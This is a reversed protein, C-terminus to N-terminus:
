KVLDYMFSQEVLSKLQKLLATKGSHVYILQGLISIDSLSSKVIEEFIFGLEHVM